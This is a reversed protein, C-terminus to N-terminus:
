GAPPPDVPAPPTPQVANPIAYVGGGTGLVALAFGLWGVTSVDSFGGAAPIVGMLYTIGAVAAALVSKRIGAIGPAKELQSTSVIQPQTM